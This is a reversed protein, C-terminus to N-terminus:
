KPQNEVDFCRFMDIRADKRSEIPRMVCRQDKPWDADKRVAFPLEKNRNPFGSHGLSVDTAAYGWNVLHEQTSRDLGKLRTPISARQVGNLYGGGFGQEWGAPNGSLAIHM